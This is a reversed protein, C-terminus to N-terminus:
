TIITPKKMKATRFKIKDKIRQTSRDISIQAAEIIDKREDDPLKSLLAAVISNARIADIQADFTAQYQSSLVNTLSEIHPMNVISGDPMRVSVLKMKQLTFLKAVEDSYEELNLEM